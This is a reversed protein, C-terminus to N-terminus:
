DGLENIAEKDSCPRYVGDCNKIQAPLECIAEAIERGITGPALAFEENYNASGKVKGRRDYMTIQYTTEEFTECNIGLRVSKMGYKKNRSFYTTLWYTRHRYKVNFTAPDVYLYGSLEDALVIGLFVMGDRHTKNASFPSPKSTDGEKEMMRVYEAKLFGRTPEEASRRALAPAGLIVLLASAAVWRLM